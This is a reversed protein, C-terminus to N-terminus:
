EYSIRGENKRMLTPGIGPVKMLDSASRFPGHSSRFDVIREALVAGIGELTEVEEVRAINIRILGRAGDQVTEPTAIAGEDVWLLPALRSVTKEGFGDVRDLSAVTPFPGLRDRDALIAEARTEGVGPLQLLDAKTARNLDIRGDLRIAWNPTPSPPPPTSASELAAQPTPVVVPLPTPAAVLRGAPIREIHNPNIRPPLTAPRRAEVVFFVLTICLFIGLIFRLENRGLGRFM